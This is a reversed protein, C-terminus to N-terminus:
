YVAIHCSNKFKSVTTENLDNITLIDGKSDWPIPSPKYWIYLLLVYTVMNSIWYWTWPLNSEHMSQKIKQEFIDHCCSFQWLKSKLLLKWRMYLAVFIPWPLWSLQCYISGFRLHIWKLYAGMFFVKHRTKHGTFQGDSTFNWSIGPLGDSVYLSTWRFCLM